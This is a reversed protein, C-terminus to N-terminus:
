ERLASKIMSRLGEDDTEHAIVQLAARARIATENKPKDLPRILVAVAEANRIRELGAIASGVTRYDELAEELFQVAVPDDVYSLAETAEMAARVSGAQQARTLLRRCSAILANADRPGILVSGTFSDSPIQNAG